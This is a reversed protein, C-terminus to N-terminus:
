VGERNGRLRLGPFSPLFSPIKAPPKLRSASKTPRKKSINPTSAQASASKSERVSPKSTPSLPSVLITSKVRFCALTLLDSCFWTSPPSQYRSSLIRTSSTNQPSKSPSAAQLLKPILALRGLPRCCHAHFLCVTSSPLYSPYRAYRLFLVSVIIIVRPFRKLIM